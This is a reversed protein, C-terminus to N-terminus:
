NLELWDSSCVYLFVLVAWERWKGHPFLPSPSHPNSCIIPTM